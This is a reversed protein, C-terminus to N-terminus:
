WRETVLIDINAIEINYFTANTAEPKETMTIDVDINYDALVKIIQLYIISKNIRRDIDDYYGSILNKIEDLKAAPISKKTNNTISIDIDLPVYLPSVHEVYKGYVTDNVIDTISKKMITQGVDGNGLFSVFVKNINCASAGNERDEQEQQWVKILYIGRIKEKILNKYDENYVISNNFNKNYRLINQMENINLSSEYTNSKVINECLIDFDGIIALNEPVDDSAISEFVEVTLIDNLQINLGNTNKTRVCVLLEGDLKIELSVDSDKDIFMQSYKLEEGDRYVKFDYLQKYTTNLPIKFYLNNDVTATIERRSGMTLTLTKIETATLNVEEDLMFVDVGTTFRQYRDLSVDVGSKIDATIVLPKQLKIYGLEYMLRALLKTEGTPDYFESFLNTERKIADDIKYGLENALAVVGLDGDLGSLRPDSKVLGLFYKNIDERNIDNFM